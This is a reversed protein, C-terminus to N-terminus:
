AWKRRSRVEHHHSSSDEKSTTLFTKHNYSSFHHLVPTHHIACHLSVFSIVRAHIRDQLADIQVRTRSDAVKCFFPLFCWCWNPLAIFHHLHLTELSQDCVWSNAIGFAALVPLLSFSSLITATLSKPLLKWREHLTSILNM